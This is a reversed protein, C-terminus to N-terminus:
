FQVVAGATTVDEFFPFGESTHAVEARRTFSDDEALVLHGGAHDDFPVPFDKENPPSHLRTL